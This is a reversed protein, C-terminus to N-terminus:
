SIMESFNIVQKRLAFVVTDLAISEPYGFRNVMNKLITEVMNRIEISYTKYYSYNNKKQFFADRLLEADIGEVTRRHSLLKSFLDHFCVLVNDSRSSIVNKGEQIFIEGSSQMGLFKQAIERRFHQPDRDPAIVKELSTMFHIDPSDVKEGTTPHIFSFKPVMIHSFAKNELANALLTYQLYRRLDEEIENPNRDVTAETIEKDIIMFYLSQVVKVLGAFDGYDGEGAGLRFRGIKRSPLTKREKKWKNDISMWHHLESGEKIMRKLQSLFTGVHVKRGDSNSITNRMINQLQRVSIGERGEYPYHERFLERMFEDDILALEENSFLGSEGLSIADPHRKILKELAEPDYLNLNLKLAENRFPHWHPLKQITALPDDSQCAYLFLKKEVTIDNYLNQKRQSWNSPWKKRSPPLLRTMVAYYAAIRLLNPDVQYNIKMIEMDRKLIDMESNADLLYNVPIKEIRDLLKSSTLQKDLLAMEELNTTMVVTNDVSAQTSEISVKGSGLLMLLPKYDAETSNDTGFADHIHLLGRNASVIAGAYQYIDTGPVHEALIAKDEGSLDLHRMRVRLQKMDDINAIGTAQGNSFVIEEVRVYEELINYLSKGRNTPNQLLGEIIDLSCKDLMANHYYTPFVVKGKHMEHVHNFLEQRPRIVRDGLSLVTPFLLLPNHFFSSWVELSRNSGGKGKFEFFFSYLKVAKRKTYEELAETILDIINTKGSAPPGVLVLGRNPGTEKGASDIAAVLHKVAAEQGFVANTGKNFIDNFIRYSIIPEGARVVIDFDFYEIARALLTSSTHLFDGPTQIFEEIFHSFPLTRNRTYGLVNKADFHSM